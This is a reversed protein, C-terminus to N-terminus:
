RPGAIKAEPKGILPVVKMPGHSLCRVMDLNDSRRYLTRPCGPSPCAIWTGFYELREDDVTAEHGRM